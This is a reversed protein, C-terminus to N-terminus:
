RSQRLGRPKKRRAGIRSALDAVLRAVDAASVAVGFCLNDPRVLFGHIGHAEFYAKAGGDADVVRVAGLPADGDADSWVATTATSPRPRSPPTSDAPLTAVTRHGTASTTARLAASALADANRSLHKM